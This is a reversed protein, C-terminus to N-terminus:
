VPVCVRERCSARGIEATKTTAPYGSVNPDFVLPQAKPLPNNTSIVTVSHFANAFVPAIELLGNFSSMPGTVQVLAGAPPLNTTGNAGSWFVAIGGSADQMFFETNAVGTMDAWTTVIGQLTFLSTTNTPAFSGDVMSRFQAITLVPTPKVILQAKASNTAGFQNTITVFYLNSSLSTTVNSLTLTPTTASSILNTVLTNTFPVVKWQYTLPQSGGSVVTFTATDGTNNTTSAPQNTITPPVPVSNVFLTAFRTVNTGAANSSVCSYIGSQTLAVNTITLIINTAGSVSFTNNTMLTNTNYYWRYAITPDGVALNTFTATGGIFVTTNDAPQIVLSPPNVSGVVVDAFTTGVVLNDVNIVGEGTNQRFSYTAISTASTTDTGNTTTTTSNETTPNLWLTTVGTGLVVRTALTYSTNPNLDVPINNTVTTGANQIAVRYTGSAAGNTIIFVRAKFTGSSEFHTFYTQANGLPITLVNIKFSAYLAPVPNGLVNTGVPSGAPTAYPGNTLNAHVDQALAQSVQLANPASALADAVVNIPSAGSHGIWFFSSANTLNGTAYSDFNDQLIISARANIALLGIALLSGITKLNSKM